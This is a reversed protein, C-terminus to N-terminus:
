KSYGGRFLTPGSYQFENINDVPNTTPLSFFFGKSYFFPFLCYIFSNSFKGEIFYM